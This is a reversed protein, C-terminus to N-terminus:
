CDAVRTELKNVLKDIFTFAIAIFICDIIITYANLGIMGEFFDYFYPNQSKPDLIALFQNYFLTNTLIYWGCVVAYAKNRNHILFRNILVAFCGWLAVAEIFYYALYSYVILQQTLESTM